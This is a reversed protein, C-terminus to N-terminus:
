RNYLAIAINEEFMAINEPEADDGYKNLYLHLAEQYYHLAENSASSKLAEEGAKVLYEETKELSGAKSYHYALMM